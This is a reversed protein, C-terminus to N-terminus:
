LIFKETVSRFPKYSFLYRKLRKIISWRSSVRSNLYEAADIATDFETTSPRDGGHVRLKPVLELM